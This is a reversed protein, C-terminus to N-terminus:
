DKLDDTKEKISLPPDLVETKEEETNKYVVLESPKDSNTEEDSQSLFAKIRKAFLNKKYSKSGVSTREKDMNLTFKESNHKM